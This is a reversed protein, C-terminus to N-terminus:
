LKGIFNFLRVLPGAVPEQVLLLGLESRPTRNRLLDSHRLGGPFQHVHGDGGHADLEHAEDGGAVLRRVGAAQAM